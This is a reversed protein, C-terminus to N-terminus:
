PQLGAHKNTALLGKSFCLWIRARKKAKPKQTKRVAKEEVYKQFIGLLAFFSLIKTFHYTSLSFFYHFYHSM